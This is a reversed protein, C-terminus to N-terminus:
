KMAAGPQWLLNRDRWWDPALLGYVNHDWFRGHLYESERQTGEFRFGLRKAVRNSAENGTAASLEIRHLRMDSLAKDILVTCCATMLGQGVFGSGLWFALSARHNLSDIGSLGVMGALRGQSVIALIRSAGSLNAQQFERIAVIADCTSQVFGVWSLWRALHMRSEDVLQFYEAADEPEFERMSVGSRVPQTSMSVTTDDLM